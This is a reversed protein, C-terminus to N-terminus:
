YDRILQSKTLRPLNPRMLWIFVIDAIGNLLKWQIKFRFWIFLDWSKEISITAWRHRWRRCRISESTWFRRNRSRRNKGEYSARNRRQRRHRRLRLLQFPLLLLAQEDPVPLLLVQGAPDPFSSCAVEAAAPEVAFWSERELQKTAKSDFSQKTWTFIKVMKPFRKLFNYKRNM